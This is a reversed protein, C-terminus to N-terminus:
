IKLKKEKKGYGYSDKWEENEKAIIKAMDVYWHYRILNEAKRYIFIKHSGWIEHKTHCTSDVTPSLFMKSGWTEQTIFFNYTRFSNTAEHELRESWPRASTLRWRWPWWWTWLCRLWGWQWIVIMIDYRMNTLWPTPTFFKLHSSNTWVSRSLSRQTTKCM